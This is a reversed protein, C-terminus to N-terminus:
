SWKRWSKVGSNSSWFIGDRDIFGFRDADGDTAIGLALKRELIEASRATPFHKLGDVVAISLKHNKGDLLPVVVAHFDAETGLQAIAAVAAIAITEQPDKLLPTLTRIALSAHRGM